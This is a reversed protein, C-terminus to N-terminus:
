EGPARTRANESVVRSRAAKSVVRSRADKSVVRTRANRVKREIAARDISEGDGALAREWAVIADAFRQQRYRLDGLHDQIVSNAPM